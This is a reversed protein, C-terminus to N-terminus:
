INPSYTLFYPRIPEHILGSPSSRRTSSPRYQVQLLITSNKLRGTLFYVLFIGTSRACPLKIGFTETPAPRGTGNYWGESYEFIALRAAARKALYTRNIMECRGLPKGDIVRNKFAMQKVFPTVARAARDNDKQNGISNAAHRLAKAIHNKGSPPQNGIVKSGSSKNHPVLGLWYAFSKTTPFKHKDHGLSTLLCLVANYSIGSIAFLDTRFNPCAVHSLNFWSVPPCQILDALLQGHKGHRNHDRWAPASSQNDSSSRQHVCRISRELGSKLFSEVM